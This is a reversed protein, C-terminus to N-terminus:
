LLVSPTVYDSRSSSMAALFKLLISAGYVSHRGNWFKDGLKGKYIKHIKAIQPIKGFISIRMINENKEALSRMKQIRAWM